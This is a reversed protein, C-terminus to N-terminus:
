LSFFSVSPITFYRRPIGNKESGVLIMKLLHATAVNDQLEGLIGCASERIYSEESRLRDIMEYVLQPDKREKLNKEIKPLGLGKLSLNDFIDLLIQLPVEDGRKVLLRAARIRIVENDSKYFKILEKIETAV